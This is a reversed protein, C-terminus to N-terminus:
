RARKIAAELELRIAESIEHWGEPMPGGMHHAVIARGFLEPGDDRELTLFALALTLEGSADICAQSKCREVFACLAAREEPSAYELGAEELAAACIPCIHPEREM